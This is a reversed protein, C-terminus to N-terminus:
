VKAEGKAKLLAKVIENNLEISIDLKTEHFLKYLCDFLEPSAAMLQADQQKVVTAIIDGKDNFIGTVLGGPQTHWKM